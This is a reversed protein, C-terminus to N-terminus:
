RDAEPPFYDISGYITPIDALKHGPMVHTFFPLNRFSPTVTRFRYPTKGGDSVLYYLIEGRGAEVVSTAEGKPPSLSTYFLTFKVRGTEDYIKKMLPSMRKYYDEYIIKGEPMKKMVQRIISISQKIEEVRQLLRAYSDGEKFTPVEFDVDSYAAYPRRKRADWAVGSARLNPGVVGLRIADSASLKGVGVTRALVVPNNIWIKEYEKMRRELYRLAVELRDGFDKPLDWRVGGPIIYSYTIRAGAISEMLDIFPERDALAWMFVTSSGMFIGYIAIGYLHSLIRSIESVLVRIYQARPPAEIGALKELAVIYGLNANVTDVLDPREVIPIAKIYIRDESLKEVSRHVYGVDPDVKVVTDGEVWVLIRMHGSGAHAPGIQLEILGDKLELKSLAEYTMPVSRQVETM